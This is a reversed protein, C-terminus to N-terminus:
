VSQGMDLIINQGVIGTMVYVLSNLTEAVHRPRVFEKTPINKLKEEFYENGEIIEGNHPVTGLSVTNVRIGRAGMDRTISKMFGYLGSKADSYAPLGYDSIVNIIQEPM